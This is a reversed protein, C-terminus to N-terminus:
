KPDNKSQSNGVNLNIKGSSGSKANDTGSNSLHESQKKFMDLTNVLDKSLVSNMM